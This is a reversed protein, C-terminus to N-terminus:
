DSHCPYSASRSAASVMTLERFDKFPRAPQVATMSLPQAGTDAALRFVLSTHGCGGDYRAGNVFITPTDNRRQPHRGHFRPAGQKQVPTELSARKRLM